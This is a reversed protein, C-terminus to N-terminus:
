GLPGGWLKALFIVPLATGSGVLECHRRVAARAAGAVGTVRIRWVMTVVVRRVGAVLGWLGPAAAWSFVVLWSLRRGGDADGAGSCGGAM